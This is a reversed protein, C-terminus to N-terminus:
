SYIWYHLRHNWTKSIKIIYAVHTIPLIQEFNTDAIFVWASCKSGKCCSCNWTSLQWSWFAVQDLHWGKVDEISHDHPSSKTSKVSRNLRIKRSRNYCSM